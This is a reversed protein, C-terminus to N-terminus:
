ELVVAPLTVLNGDTVELALVTIEGSNYKAIRVTLTGAPSYKGSFDEMEDVFRAIQVGAQLTLYFKYPGLSFEVTAAHFQDPNYVAVGVREAKESVPVMFARGLPTAPVSTAAGSEHRFRLFGTLKEDSTVTVSGRDSRGRYWEVHPLEWERMGMQPISITEPLYEEPYSRGDVQVLADVSVESPNLLLLDTSWGNGTAFHAFYLRYSEPRPYIWTYFSATQSYVGMYVITGQPNRVSQSLVGVQAWGEITQILLPGGSDGSSVARNEQGACLTGPKVAPPQPDKGERRLDRLAELCHPQTYIPVAVKKLTSPSSGGSASTRGWGVAFGWAVGPVYKLEEKADLIRVPQIKVPPDFEIVALDNEQTSYNPHLVIRTASSVPGRNRFSGFGVSINELSYGDVCHGATLVKDSSILSGTCGVRSGGYIIKAVFPFEDTGADEGGVINKQHGPEARDQGVAIVASFFVFLVAYKMTKRESSKGGGRNSTLIVGALAVGVALIALIEGSM